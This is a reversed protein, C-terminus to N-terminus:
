KVINDLRKKQEEARKKQKEMENKLMALCRTELKEFLKWEDWNGLINMEEGSTFAWKNNKYYDLTFPHSYWYLITECKNNVVVSFEGRGYGPHINDFAYASVRHNSSNIKYLTVAYDCIVKLQELIACFKTEEAMDALPKYYSVVDDATNKVEEYQKLMEFFKDTKPIDYEVTVKINSM